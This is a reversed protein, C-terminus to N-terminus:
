WYYLVIAGAALTTGTAKLHTCLFPVQFDSTPITITVDFGFKDTVVIDNTSNNIVRIGCFYKNGEHDKLPETDNPYTAHSGDVAICGSGYEGNSTGGGHYGIGKYTDYAM